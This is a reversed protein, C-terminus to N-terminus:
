VVDIVDRQVLPCCCKEVIDIVTALTPNKLLVLLDIGHTAVDNRVFKRQLNESQSEM